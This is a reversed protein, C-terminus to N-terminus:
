PWRTESEQRAGVHELLWPVAGALDDAVHDPPRALEGGAIRQEEDRGYGSRVLVGRCGANHGTAVDLLKDGVMASDRVALTLERAARAILDARPKRCPCGEDPRHPCFRVADLEVGHLRLSARLRAMAEHVRTLSFLGRGVGSQNSVVVLALGASRLSRLAEPVGPLLELDDPDSLYGREVVLTGDRDLFVAPRPAFGRQRALLRECARELTEVDPHAPDPDGAPADLPWWEVREPPVDLRIGAGDEAAAPECIGFSDLSSWALRTAFRWRRVDAPQLSLVMGHAGALWGAAAVALPSRGGGLVLDAGRSDFSRGLPCLTGNRRAADGGVPIPAPGHWLVLHGRLALGVAAAPLRDRRGAFSGSHVLVRV